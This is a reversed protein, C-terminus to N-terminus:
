RMPRWSRDTACGTQAAAPRSKNNRLRPVPSTARRPQGDPHMVTDCRRCKLTVSKPQAAILQSPLPQEDADWLEYQEGELAAPMNKPKPPPPPPIVTLAGCDPCKLKSASTKPAPSCGRTASEATSVSTSPCTPRPKKRNPRPPKAPSAQQDTGPITFALSCGACRARKGIM